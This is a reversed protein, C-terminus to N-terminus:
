AEIVGRKWRLLKWFTPHPNALVSSFLGDTGTAKSRDYSDRAEAAASDGQTKTLKDPALEESLLPAVIKLNAIENRVRDVDAEKKQLLQRADKSALEDSLEL